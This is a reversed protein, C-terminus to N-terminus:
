MYSLNEKLEIELAKLMHLRDSIYKRLMSVHFINNVWALKGPLALMYAVPGIREIIEYQGIYWLSLKGRKGFQMLGKWPSLKLFVKNYAEFELDKRQM